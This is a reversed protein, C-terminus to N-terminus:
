GRAARSNWIMLDFDAVTMGSKKAIELFQQELQAYKKGSPTSKPAAIGRERLFSLIHTDLVAFEQDPRSHTIFFRSTKPGIGYISELEETTCTRLDLNRDLIMRITKAVRNHCGVGYTSLWLGFANESVRDQMSLMLRLLTFPTHPSTGYGLLRNLTKATTQANHGAVLVCFLLFEELEADTRDFKTIKTPDIM